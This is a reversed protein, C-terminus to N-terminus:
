RMEPIQRECVAKLSIGQIKSEVWLLLENRGQVSPGKELKTKMGSFVEPLDLTQARILKNVGKFLVKSLYEGPHNRKFWAKTSQLFYESFDYDGKELFVILLLLRGACRIDPRETSGPMDLIDQLHFRAQDFNDQLFYFIAFNYLFNLKHQRTLLKNGKNMWAETEMVVEQAKEWQLFNMYMLFQVQLGYYKVRFRVEPRSFPLKEVRNSHKRLADVEKGWSLISSQFRNFDKLFEAPFEDIWAPDDEWEELASQFNEFAAGFNKLGLECLGRIEYILLRCRKEEIELPNFSQSSHLIATFKGQIEESATHQSYFIVLVEDLLNKLSMERRVTEWLYNQSEHLDALRKLSEPTRKSIIIKREWELVSQHVTKYDFRIAKRRIKKLEQFIQTHLNKQFLAGIAAMELQIQCYVNEAAGETGMEARIVSQLRQKLTPLNKSSLIPNGELHKEYQSAFTEKSLVVFLELLQNNGARTKSELHHLVARKEKASLAQILELLDNFSNM